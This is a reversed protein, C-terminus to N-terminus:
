ASTYNNILDETITSYIGNSSILNLGKSCLKCVNASTVNGIIHGISKYSLNCFSRILVICISVLETNSHNFKIHINFPSNTYKSVFNIIESPSIDIIEKSKDSRYESATINFEFQNIKVTDFNNDDKNITNLYCDLAKQKDSGILKLIFDPDVINLYNPITDTYISLSSYKYDYISGDFDVIDKPNKHIYASLTLLYDSSKVPKNKFRDQFVHGHRDYKKNFYIAYSQNVSKMFSSLSKGKSYTILHVHNPMICYAYIKIRHLIQYKKIIRLFKVKDSDDKFLTIESISRIMIHDIGTPSLIRPTRTLLIMREAAYNNTLNSYIEAFYIIEM